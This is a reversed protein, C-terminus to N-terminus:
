QQISGESETYTITFGYRILYEVYARFPKGKFQDAYRYVLNWARHCEEISREGHAKKNKADIQNQLDQVKNRWESMNTERSYLKLVEGNQGM